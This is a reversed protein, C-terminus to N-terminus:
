AEYTKTSFTRDKGRKNQKCKASGGKHSVSNQQNLSNLLLLRGTGVLSGVAGKLHGSIQGGASATNTVLHRLKCCPGTAASLLPAFM